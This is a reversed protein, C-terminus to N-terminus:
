SAKFSPTQVVDLSRCTFISLFPVSITVCFLLEPFAVFPYSPGIESGNSSDEPSASAEADSRQAEAPSDCHTGPRAAEDYIM